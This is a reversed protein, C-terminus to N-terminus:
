NLAAFIHLNCMFKVMSSLPTKAGLSVNYARAAASAMEAGLRLSMRGFIFTMLMLKHMICLSHYCYRVAMILKMNYNYKLCCFMFLVFSLNNPVLFATSVFVFM